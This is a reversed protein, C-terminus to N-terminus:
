REKWPEKLMTKQGYSSMFFSYILQLSETVSLSRANNKNLNSLNPNM